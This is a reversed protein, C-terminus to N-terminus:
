LVRVFLQSIKKKNKLWQQEVIAKLRLFEPTKLIVELVLIKISLFNFWTKFTQKKKALNKEGGNSFVHVLFTWLMLKILKLM